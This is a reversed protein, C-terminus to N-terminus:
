RYTASGVGYKTLVREEIGRQGPKSGTLYEKVNEFRPDHLLSGPYSGVRRPDPIPRLGADRQRQAATIGNGGARRPTPSNRIGSVSPPLTARSM